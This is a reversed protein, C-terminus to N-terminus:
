CDRHIEDNQERLLKLEDLVDFMLESTEDQDTESEDNEGIFDIQLEAFEVRLKTDEILFGHRKACLDSPTFSNLALLLATSRELHNQIEQVAIDTSDQDYTSFIGLPGSEESDLYENWADNSSTHSANVSFLEEEFESQFLEADSPGCAAIFITLLSLSVVVKLVFYITNM